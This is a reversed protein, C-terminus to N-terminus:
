NFDLTITASGNLSIVPASQDTVLVFVSASNTNGSADEVSFTVNSLGLPFVSPADNNIATIVGDVNDSATASALLLSIQTNTAPTGSANVAAVEIDAPVNLLPQTQDVVTVSAQANGTFSALDTASFTVVTEGLPFVSPANHTPIIPGDVDDLATAASLFTQIASNSAATGAANNAAVIISAPPTVVPASADQVNVTRIKQLASNGAADDTNYFLTYTGVTTNDVIGTIVVCLGADVNDIVSAGLEIYTDNVNINTSASGNLTIV